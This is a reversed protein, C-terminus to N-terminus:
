AISSRAEQIAKWRPRHMYHDIIAGAIDRPRGNAPFHGGAPPSWSVADVVHRTEPEDDPQTIIDVGAYALGPIVDVAEVALARLSEPVTDTVDHVDGSVRQTVSVVERDVVVCTFTDGAVMDEVMIRKTGVRGDLLRGVQKWAARFEKEGGTDISVGTTSVVRAPRIYVARGRDSVYAFARRVQTDMFTRFPIVPLGRDQLLRRHADVHACLKRALYSTDPGSFNVFPVMGEPLRVLLTHRDYREVELNRRQAASELLDSPRRHRSGANRVVSGGSTGVSM